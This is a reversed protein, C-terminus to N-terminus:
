LRFRSYLKLIGATFIGGANSFIINRLFEMLIWIGLASSLPLWRFYANFFQSEDVSKEIASEIVSRDIMQSNQVSALTIETLTNTMDHRFNEQYAAQNALVSFFIGAALLINIIFLMKSISNSGVRFKVWRKLEKGYTNSLPLIYSAAIFISLGLFFGAITPLLVISLVAEICGILFGTKKETKYGFASMFSLSLVLFLFAILIPLFSSLVGTLAMITSQGSTDILMTKIFSNQLNVIFGVSIGSLRIAALFIFFSLISGAITTCELKDRKQFM